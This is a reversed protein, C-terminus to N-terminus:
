HHHSPVQRGTKVEVLIHGWLDDFEHQAQQVTVDEGATLRAAWSGVLGDIKGAITYDGESSTAPLMSNIQAIAQDTMEAGSIGTDFRRGDETAYSASGMHVGPAETTEKIYAADEPDEMTPESGVEQLATAALVKNVAYRALGGPFLLQGDGDTRTHLDGEQESFYMHGTSKEVIAVTCAGNFLPIAGLHLGKMIELLQAFRPVEEVVGLTKLTTMAESTLKMPPRIATHLNKLEAEFTPLGHPPYQVFSVVRKILSKAEAFPEHIDAPSLTDVM